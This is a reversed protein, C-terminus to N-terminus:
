RLLVTSLAPLVKVSCLPLRRLLIRLGYSKVLGGAFGPRSRSSRRWGLFVKPDRPRIWHPVGCGSKSRYRIRRIYRHSAGEARLYIQGRMGGKAEFPIVPVSPLSTIRGACIM